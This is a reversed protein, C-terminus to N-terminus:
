MSISSKEIRVCNSILSILEAKKNIVIKGRSTNIVESSNFEGLIRAVVERTTGLRGAIEQQTMYIAGGDSAQNLLLNALRQSLNWGQLQEVETMLKFVATSLANITLDQISSEQKFLQKYLPGPIVSVETKEEAIVWAPYLLRNFLCNIAFVCTEGPHITYFTSQSGNPTYAFVRLCGKTVIYAGSVRDGKHIAISDKNVILRQTSSNLQEINSNSLALFNSIDIQNNTPKTDTM